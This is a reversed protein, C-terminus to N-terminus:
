RSGLIEVHETETRSQKEMETTGALSADVQIVDGPQIQDFSGAEVEQMSGTSTRRSLRYNPEVPTNRLRRASLIPATEEAETVLRSTTEIRAQTDRIESAVADSETDVRDRFKAKLEDNQQASQAISQRSRM